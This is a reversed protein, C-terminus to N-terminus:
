LCPKQLHELLLLLRTELLGPQALAQIRKFVECCSVLEQEYRNRDWNGPTKGGTPGFWSVPKECEADIRMLVDRIFNVSKSNM